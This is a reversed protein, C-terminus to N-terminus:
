LGVYRLFECTITVLESQGTRASVPGGIDIKSPWASEMYYRAVPEGSTNYMALGCDKTSGVPDRSAALYWATFRADATRPRVFTIATPTRIGAFRNLLITEGERSEIYDVSGVSSSIGALESFSAIEYGDATLEFRTATIGEPM